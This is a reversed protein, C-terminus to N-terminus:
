RAKQGSSKTNFRCAVGERGRCEKNPWRKRKKAAREEDQKAGMEKNLVDEKLDQFLEMDSDM